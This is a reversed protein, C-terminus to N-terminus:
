NMYIKKWLLINDYIQFKDFWNAILFVRLAHKKYIIRM